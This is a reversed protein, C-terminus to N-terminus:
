RREPMGEAVLPIVPPGHHPAAAPARGEVTRGLCRNFTVLVAKLLVAALAVEALIWFILWGV